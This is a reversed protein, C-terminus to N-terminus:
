TNVKSKKLECLGLIFVVNAAKFIKNNGANKEIERNNGSTQRKKKGGEGEDM